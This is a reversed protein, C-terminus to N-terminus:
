LFRRLDYDNAHLNDWIIPKRKIVSALEKISESSIFTSIINPGTWFFSISRDLKNGITQLYSSEFVSPKAMRACYETPCFFLKITGVKEKLKQLVQNSIYCQAESFSSFAQKDETSM